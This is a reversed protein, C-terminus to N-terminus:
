AVGKASLYPKAMTRRNAEWNSCDKTRCSVTCRHMVGRVTSRGVMDLEYGRQRLAIGVRPTMNGQLEAREESYM